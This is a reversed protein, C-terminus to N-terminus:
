AEGLAERVLCVLKLLEDDILPDVDDDREVVADLEEQALSTLIESLEELLFCCRFQLALWTLAEARGLRRAQAPSMKKM